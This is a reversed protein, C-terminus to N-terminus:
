TTSPEGTPSWWETTAGNKGCTDTLLEKSECCHEGKYRNYTGVSVFCGAKKVAKKFAPLYIERLAQDSVEVEVWLRETEQNNLAFHKVCAAVDQKRSAKLSLFAMEGALYPDESM